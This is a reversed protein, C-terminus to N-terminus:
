PVNAHADWAFLDLEAADDTLRVRCELRLGLRDLLRTSEINGPSVIALVRQLGLVDRAHRLTASAAEHAYGSARYAELFAYGIDPDGLGDRKVLGCIGLKAHDASREVLWLGFGHRAYSAVPGEAIYRRADDLTRVGRDGIHRLFAADNLLERMFEADDGAIERLALRATRLVTVPTPAPPSPMAAPSSPGHPRPRWDAGVSTAADM